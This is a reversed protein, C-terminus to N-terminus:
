EADAPADIDGVVEVSEEDVPEPVVSLGNFEVAETIEAPEDVVDLAEDASLAEGDDEVPATVAISITESWGLVDDATVTIRASGPGVATIMGAASVTAVSTDSSKYIFKGGTSNNTPLVNSVFIARAEGQELFLDTPALSFGTVPIEPNSGPDTPDKSGSISKPRKASFRSNDTILVMTGAPCNYYVWAACGSTTRLCGSSCDTGIANYTGPKLSSSSKSSYIPGHIYLGGSHRSAYPSYTSGWCHWREKKQITFTGVKTKGNKGTGTPFVRLTKSYEGNADRGIVALTHTPKCVYIVYPSSYGSPVPVPATYDDYVKIKVSAQKGGRPTTATITVTGVNVGTVVGDASVTAVKKNSSKWTVDKDATDPKITPNLRLKAAIPLKVTGTRDLKISTPMTPDIIQVKVAARLKNVTRAAVTIKGAKLPTVVGNEITALSWDSVNWAVDQVATDPLVTPTLSLTEGLYLKVTGTKDLTIKTPITPDVVKIKVAARKTGSRAAVTVTGPSLPTVLGDESVIAVSKPSSNWRISETSTAPKLTAKLQLTEGLNLKITGTRDLTIAKTKVTAALAPTALVAVLCAALAAILLFSTLKRFMHKM